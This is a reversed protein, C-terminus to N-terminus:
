TRSLLSVTLAYGNQKVTDAYWKGSDKLTRKQTEYDVHTIGFRKSYGHHWEFNDLLSWVFYGRIDVGSEMAKRVEVLHTAIYETRELDHIQGDPAVVDKFAAGNETIYIPPLEY